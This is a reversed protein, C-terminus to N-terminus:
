QQLKKNKHVEIVETVIEEPTKSISVTIATDPEELTKFQSRLLGPPMFHDKRAQLRESIEDFSGKLYVFITQNSVDKELIKRYSKKLASCATVAGTKHHEKSLRNLSDLWGQRDKDNLPNGSAMKKVNAKPHYDDGDFFPINLKSALLKGITSKGCGSVGMVYFITANSM